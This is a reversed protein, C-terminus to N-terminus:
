SPLATVSPDSCAHPASGQLQLLGCFTEAAVVWRGHQRVAHGHVDQLLAQGNSLIDYSVSAVAPSLLRVTLVRAASTSAYQSKAQRVLADHFHAGNQLTAQSQAVTSKGDFFIQYASRVAQAVAAPARRGPAGAAASSLSSSSSSSIGGSASGSSTTGPAPSHSPGTCGGIMLATVTAAIVAGTRAGMAETRGM